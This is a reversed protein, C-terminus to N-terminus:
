RSVVVIHRDFASHRVGRTVRAGAFTQGTLELASIERVNFRRWEPLSGSSSAGVTQWLLLQVRGNKTGLVHPEGVRLEGDYRFRVVTRRDIAEHLRHALDSENLPQGIGRVTKPAQEVSPRTAREREALGAVFGQEFASLRLRVRQESDDGFTRSARVLRAFSIGDDSRM